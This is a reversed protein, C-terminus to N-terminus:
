WAVEPHTVIPDPLRYVVILQNFRDWLMHPRYSRRNLWKRWIRGVLYYFREIGRSNHGIGFYEYHGRLKLGLASHQSRISDHRHRRCWQSINRLAKTLSAKSTKWKVIWKRARSRGWYVTFGLLDFSRAGRDRRLGKSRLHTTAASLM